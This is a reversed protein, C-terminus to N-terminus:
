SIFFLVTLNQKKLIVQVALSKKQKTKQFILFFDIIQKQNELLWILIKEKCKM